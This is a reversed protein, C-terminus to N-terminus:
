SGRKKMAVIALQKANYAKGVLGKDAHKSCNVKMTEWAKVINAETSTPDELYMDLVGQFEKLLEASTKAPSSPAPPPTVPKSVEQPQTPKPAPPTAAKERMEIGSGGCTDCREEVGPNGDNPVYGVGDCGSCSGPSAKRPTANAPRPAPAPAATQTSAPTAGNRYDEQVRQAGPISDVESEDIMGLGCLSLTLRRKAKTEAKMYANAKKEGMLGKVDVAGTAADCRGTKDAGKATVTYIDGDLKGVLDTVSVSRLNRIQDTCDKAAYLTLKGNLIIYQFPKTLPNLSLSNCLTNYYLVRQEVNLKSLDGEVLAKEIAEPLAAALGESPKAIASNM